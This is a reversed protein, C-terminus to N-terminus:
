AGPHFAAVIEALAALKKKDQFKISEAAVLKLEEVTQAHKSWYGM